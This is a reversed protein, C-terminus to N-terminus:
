RTPDRYTKDVKSYHSCASKELNLFNQTPALLFFFYAVCSKLATEVYTIFEPCISDSCPNKGPKFIPPYCLTKKQFNIRLSVTAVFLKFVRM